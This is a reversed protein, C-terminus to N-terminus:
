PTRGGRNRRRREARQAAVEDLQRQEVRREDQRAAAELRERLRTLVDVAQHREAVVTRARALQGQVQGVQQQIVLAERELVELYRSALWLDAADLEGSPATRAFTADRERAIAKLRHELQNAETEIQSMKQLAETLQSERIALVSALRFPVHPM